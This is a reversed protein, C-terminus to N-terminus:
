GQRMFTAYKIRCVVGCSGDEEIISKTEHNLKNAKGLIMAINISKDVGFCYITNTRAIPGVSTRSTAGSWPWLGPILLFSVDFDNPLKSKPSRPM